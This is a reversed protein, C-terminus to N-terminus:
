SGHRNRWSTRTARQSVFWEVLRLDTETDIDLARERPVVFLEVRAQSWHDYRWLADRRIAYVSPSLSYVRPAAQRTALPKPPRKCLRAAGTKDLEVMNFYPNREAEYGTTVVDAQGCILQAVCGAIDGSQRLPVGIDLDVLVEVRQHDREELCQVVHRFVLWKPAEDTALHAPRLGPVDVGAARAVEAIEPDDTSVVLRGLVPCAQACRITHMLLLQGAVQRLAKRPVGKSGGRACIAGVVQGRAQPTMLRRERSNQFRRTQTEAGM